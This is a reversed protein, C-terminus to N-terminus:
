VRSSLLAVQVKRTALEKRLGVITAIVPKADPDKRVGGYAFDEGYERM